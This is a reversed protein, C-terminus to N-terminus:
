SLSLGSVQHTSFSGNYADTGNALIPGFPELSINAIPIDWAGMKQNIDAFATENWKLRPLIDHMSASHWTENEHGHVFAMAQACCPM